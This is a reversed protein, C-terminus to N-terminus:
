TARIETTDIRSYAGINKDMIYNYIISCYSTHYPINEYFEPAIKAIQPLNWCPISPFDHHEIHYGLNINFFNWFGYYNYSEQGKVFEYHEGITHAAAPHM